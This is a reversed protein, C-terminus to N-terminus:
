SDGPLTLLPVTSRNPSIMERGVNGQFTQLYHGYLLYSIENVMASPVPVPEIGFRNQFSVDAANDFLKVM